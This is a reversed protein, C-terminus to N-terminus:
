DATQGSSSCPADVESGKQEKELAALRKARHAQGIKELIPDLFRFLIWVQMLLNAINTVLCPYVATALGVAVACAAYALFPKNFHGLMTRQTDLLFIYLVVQGFLLLFPSETFQRLALWALSALCLVLSVPRVRGTKWYAKIFGTVYTVGFLAISAWNLAPLWIGAIICVFGFILAYKEIKGLLVKKDM